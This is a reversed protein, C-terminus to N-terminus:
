LWESRRSRVGFHHDLEGITFGTARDPEISHTQHPLFELCFPSASQRDLNTIVCRFLINARKASSVIMLRYNQSVLSKSLYEINREALPVYFIVTKREAFIHIKLM